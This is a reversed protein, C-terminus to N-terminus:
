ATFRAECKRCHFRRLLTRDLQRGILRGEQAWLLAVTAVGLATIPLARSRGAGCRLALLSAGGLLGGLLLCAWEGLPELAVELSACAPCRPPKGIVIPLTM